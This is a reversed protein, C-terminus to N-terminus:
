YAVFIFVWMCVYVCLNMSVQVTKLVYLLSALGSVIESNTVESASTYLLHPVHNCKRLECKERGVPKNIWWGVNNKKCNKIWDVNGAAVPSIYSVSAVFPAKTLPSHQAAFCGALLQVSVTVSAAHQQTLSASVEGSKGCPTSIFLMRHTPPPPPTVQCFELMKSTQTNASQM